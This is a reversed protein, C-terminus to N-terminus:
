RTVAHITSTNRDQWFMHLPTTLKTSHTRHFCRLPTALRNFPKKKENHGHECGGVLDPDRMPHM